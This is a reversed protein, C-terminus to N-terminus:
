KMKIHNRMDYVVFHTKKEGFGFVSKYDYSFSGPEGIRSGPETYHETFGLM